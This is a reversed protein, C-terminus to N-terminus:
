VGDAHEILYSCIKERQIKSWRRLRPDNEIIHSVYDVIDTHTNDNNLWVKETDQSLDKTALLDRIDPLDRSTVLLHVGPLNWNRITMITELVETRSPEEPSEDLADLLIYVHRCRTITQRLHQVLVKVPPLGQNSMDKLRDLDAECGVIQGCLQLLLARLAASADQKSEDNFTFFFFASACNPMKM